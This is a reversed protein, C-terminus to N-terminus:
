QMKAIFKDLNEQSSITFIQEKYRATPARCIICKNATEPNTNVLDWCDSQIIHGCPLIVVNDGLVFNSRCFPCEEEFFCRTPMLMFGLDYHGNVFAHQFPKKGDRAEIRLSLDGGNELLIRAIVNNGEMAAFHLATCGGMVPVTFSLMCGEIELITRVPMNVDAGNALLLSVMEEVNNIVAIHLATHGNYKHGPNNLIYDVEPDYELIMKVISESSNILSLLLPTFGHFVSCVLNNVPFDADAGSELLTRVMFEDRNFIALHLAAFGHFYTGPADVPVNVAAGNSLLFQAIELKGLMVACHLLAFGNYPHFQSTVRTNVNVGEKLFGSIIDIRDNRIAEVLGESIIQIESRIRQGVPEFMDPTVPRLGLGGLERKMSSVPLLVVVSIFAFLYVIKDFKMFRGGILDFYCM